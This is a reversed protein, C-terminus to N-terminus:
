RIGEEMDVGIRMFMEVRIGKGIGREIKKVKGSDRRRARDREMEGVREREKERM